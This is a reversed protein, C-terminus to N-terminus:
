LNTMMRKLCLQEQGSGKKEREKEGQLAKSNVWFLFFFFITIRLNVLVENLSEM